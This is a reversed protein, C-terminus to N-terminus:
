VHCDHEHKHNRESVHNQISQMSDKEDERFGVEGLDEGAEKMKHRLRHNEKLSHKLVGIVEKVTVGSIEEFDQRVQEETIQSHNDSTDNNM